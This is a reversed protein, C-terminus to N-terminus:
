CALCFYKQKISNAICNSGSKFILMETCHFSLPLQFGILQVSFPFPKLGLDAIQVSVQM